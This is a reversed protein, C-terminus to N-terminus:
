RDPTETSHPQWMSPSLRLQQRRLAILQYPDGRMKDSAQVQAMHTLADNLREEDLRYGHTTMCDSYANAQARLHDINPEGPLPAVANAAQRCEPVDMVGRPEKSACGALAWGFWAALAARSLLGMLSAAVPARVTERLDHRFSPQPIADRSQRRDLNWCRM